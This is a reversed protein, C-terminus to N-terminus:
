LKNEYNQENNEKITEGQRQRIAATEVSAASWMAHQFAKV